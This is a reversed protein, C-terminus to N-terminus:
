ALPGRRRPDLSAIVVDTVVRFGIGILGLVVLVGTIVPIDQSEVASFLVSSLGQMDLEFEIIMMGALVTSFTLFSGALVPPIANRAVHRDRIVHEPLGKARGTLVYEESRQVDMGARMLLMVQGFTLLAVGIVAMIPSGRGTTLTFDARYMIDLAHPGLGGLSIGLGVGVLAAPLALVSILRHGRRRAVGRAILAAVVATTLSLAVVWWVDSPLLAGEEGALMGRWLDLSDRPLGIADRSALLPDRIALVLVFVLFPPFMAASAVGLTSITSGAVASRNWSGLRGLFEGVVWGIITGVVFITLTVPLAEAILSTVPSGGFSSGLDGRVLGVLYEVYRVLVPRDLGLAERTAAEELPTRTNIVAWNYPVWVEMVLLAVAVFVVMTVVAWALRRALFAVFWPPRRAPASLRGTM